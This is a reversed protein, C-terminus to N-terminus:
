RDVKLKQLRGEVGGAVVHLHQWIVVLLCHVHSQFIYVVVGAIGGQHYHALDHFGDQGPLVVGVLDRDDDALGAAAAPSGVVDM